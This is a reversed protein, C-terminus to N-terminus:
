SCLQNALKNSFLLAAEITCGAALTSDTDTEQRWYFWHMCRRCQGDLLNIFTINDKTIFNNTNTGTEWARHMQKSWYQPTVAQVTLLICSASITLLPVTYANTKPVFHSLSLRCDTFPGATAAKTGPEILLQKSCRNTNPVFQNSAAIQLRAQQQQKQGLTLHFNYLVVM